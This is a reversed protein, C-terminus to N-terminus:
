SFLESCTSGGGVVGISSGTEGTWGEVGGGDIGGVEPSVGVVSRDPGFDDVGALNTSRMRSKVCDRLLVLLVVLM